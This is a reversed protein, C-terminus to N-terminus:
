HSGGARLAGRRRAEAAVDSCYAALRTIGEVIQDDPASFTARVFGEGASGFGSGPVVAVRRNELLSSAFDRSSMGASTIDVWLYFAGAPPYVPVGYEGLIELARARRRAYANKMSTVVDQTGTLAALAAWQSAVNVCSILSEQLSALAPAIAPPAVLYGVRWGTMAYAKSFSFVSVVRQDTDLSAASVYDSDYTIVDYTEDSVVWLNHDRAFELIDIMLDKPIIAGVPNSPSNILLLKTAPTTLQELQGITPLFGTDASLRYSKVVASRIAAMMGYNPWGPNPLLVEDGPDVLAAFTSYLSGIAGNTVVIEEPGTTIGNTDRLKSVLQSRLELIGAHHCYKTQGAELAAMGAKVIHQPTPFDPEGPALNIVDPQDALLTMLDRIASTPMAAVARSIRM